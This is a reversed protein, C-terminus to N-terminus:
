RLTVGKLNNKAQELSIVEKELLELVMSNHLKIKEVDEKTEHNFSNFIIQYDTKRKGLFIKIFKEIIPKIQYERFTNMDRMFNEVDIKKGAGLNHGRNEEGFIISKPVGTIASHIDKIGDIFHHFNTHVNFNHIKDAEPTIVINGAKIKDLMVAVAQRIKGALNQNINKDNYHKSQYVLAGELELLKDARHLLKEVIESYPYIKEAFSFQSNPYLNILGYRSPSIEKPGRAIEVKVKKINYRKNFIDKPNLKEQILYDGSFVNIDQLQGITGKRFFGGVFFVM